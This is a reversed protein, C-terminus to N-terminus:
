NEMPIGLPKITEESTFHKLSQSFNPMQKECILISDVHHANLIINSYNQQSYFISDATALARITKEKCGNCVLLPAFLM